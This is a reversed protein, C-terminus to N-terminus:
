SDGYTEDPVAPSSLLQRELVAAMMDQHEKPVAALYKKFDKVLEIRLAMIKAGVKRPDIVKHENILSTYYCASCAILERQNLVTCYQTNNFCACRM